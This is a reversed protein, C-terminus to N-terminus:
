LLAGACAGGDRAGLPVFMRPGDISDTKVAAGHATSPNWLLMCVMPALKYTEHGILTFVVTWFNSCRQRAHEFGPSPSFSHVHSRRRDRTHSSTRLVARCTRTQTRRTHFWKPSAAPHHTRRGLPGAPVGAQRGMANEKTTGQGPRQRGQRKMPGGAPVALASNFSTCIEITLGLTGSGSRHM